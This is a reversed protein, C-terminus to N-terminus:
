DLSRTAVLSWNPDRSKTNRAFTWFDTVEAIAEPDGEILNGDADELVHIQESIFKVTVNAVTGELYAEVIEASKISVLTDTMIHGDRERDEIAQAFNAYTEPGLLASLADTDGAAYAGLVLDLAIRAGSLFGDGTFGPDLARIQAIGAEVPSAPAALPVSDPAAAPKRPPADQLDPLHVVKNDDAQSPTKRDSFPDHYGGEHGDRRGLVGRLRLVLFAAIVAFLILDLFQFGGGMM